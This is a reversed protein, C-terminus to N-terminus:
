GSVLIPRWDSCRLVSPPNPIASYARPPALAAMSCSRAFCSGIAGTWAQLQGHAPVTHGPFGSIRVPAPAMSSSVFVYSFRKVGCPPTDHRVVSDKKAIAPVDRGPVVFQDVAFFEGSNDKLLGDHHIATLAALHDREVVATTMASCGQRHAADLTVVDAAHM